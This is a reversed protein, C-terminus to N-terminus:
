QVVLAQSLVRRGALVRLRYLGPALGLVPVPAPANLRVPQRYVERGLADLLVLTASTAGPVAPLQVTATTHAPNPYLHLVPQAQPAATALVEDFLTALYSGVGVAAPASVVLSGFNATTSILGTVFVRKGSVAVTSAVDGGNGGAKQAWVFAPAPGADSLKAVFADNDGGTSTNTLVATGFTSTRGGFYGCLYLDPGNVALGTGVENDASGARQAWAFSSTTGADTLKAVFVDAGPSIGSGANTLTTAGFDASPSTFHGAVYVSSGSVAVATSRDSGPGGARQAWIYTGNPGNDVLKAVFAEQSNSTSANALTINGFRTTPGQFFGTLYLQNGNIALGTAEDQGMEGSRQAWTFGINGGLDTIKAMFVDTSTGNPDANILAFSDFLTTASSFQGALYVANGNVALANAFDYGASGARKAWAFGATSGADILKTVFVDVAGASTLSTSGFGATGTFNGAVYVSSGSLAVATAADNGSGGARQAWVFSRSANSWKAVFLDVDGQTSLVTSGFTLTGSFQGVLYVNGAADAATASVSASGDPIGALEATQWLPTQAHVPTLHLLPLLLLLALRAVFHFSPHM